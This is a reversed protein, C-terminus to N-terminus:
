LICFIRKSEFHSNIQQKLPHFSFVILVTYGIVSLRSVQLEIHDCRVCYHAFTKKSLFEVILHFHFTCFLSHFCCCFDVLVAFRSFRCSYHIFLRISIFHNYIDLSNPRFTQITIYVNTTNIYGTLCLLRPSLMEALDM